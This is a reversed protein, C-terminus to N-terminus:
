TRRIITFSARTQTLVAEDGCAKKVCGETFAVNKGKKVVRGNAIIMGNRVGELYSTSESITAIREGNELATYLALAMAEDCLATYLGGQLWGVGNLMDPRVQMSLEAQGNGFSDVVIGMLLLFPNAARGRAKIEELYGMEILYSLL